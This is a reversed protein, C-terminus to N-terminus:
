QNNVSWKYSRNLLFIFMFHQHHKMNMKKASDEKWIFHTNVVELKLFEVIIFVGSSYSYVTYVYYDITNSHYFFNEEIIRYYQLWSKQGEVPKTCYYKKAMVTMHGSKMFSLNISIIFHGLLISWFKDYKQFIVARTTKKM